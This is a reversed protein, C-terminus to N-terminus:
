KIGSQAVSRVYQGQLLVFLAVVPLTIMAAFAMIDGWLRPYQGFFVQMAVPLPRFEPGVTVMLPWLFMGWQMLFHLIAVSAIIPKSLPLAIKWFIKMWGAGDLLAAEELAVPFGIFFQYFLFLYLPNAIFPIIQVHYSDLWGWRATMLLLPIAIAEFPIIMLAVVLSVLAGRGRFTFRALGYAAMSNVIVGIFVTTGVIFVSNFLYRGFPMREFVNGYNELSVQEPIFARVSGMQREISREDPNLSTTIMYVLPFLFFFGLILLLVYSILKSIFETKKKSRLKEM